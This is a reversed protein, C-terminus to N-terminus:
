FERMFRHIKVTCGLHPKSLGNKKRKQKNKREERQKHRVQFFLIWLSNEISKKKLNKKTKLILTLTLLILRAKKVGRSAM